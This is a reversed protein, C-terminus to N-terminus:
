AFPRAACAFAPRQHTHAPRDAGVPGSMAKLAVTTAESILRPSAIQVGEDLLSGHLDFAM